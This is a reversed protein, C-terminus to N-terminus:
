PLSWPKLVIKGKSGAAVQKYASAAESLPYTKGIIPPRYDGSEFGDWLRELIKSSSILDHKLSDVGILRSENHYFDVLDFSVQRGASGSIVVVRGSPALSGLSDNLVPGGVMDFVVDAGRGNTAKQVASPVDAAGIILHTASERIPAGAPPESRDVGIVKAGIRKAILSAAGGVAGGAGMIAVTEGPQLDAADVLACWATIYSVGISAAEDFSLHVPKRRLSEVPVEMFQSHAGDRTFGVDGGSGWVEADLWEQPGEVVVGAFDRGPIRPLTTQHMAGQVNKVDSPNIPASLVRVIANGPTTIPDSLEVVRLNDVSGFQNFQLALM